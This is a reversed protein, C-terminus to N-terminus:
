IFSKKHWQWATSLIKDISKYKPKWKLDRLIKKCDAVLLPPDGKRKKKFIIKLKVRTVKEIGNIIELVSYGKGSGINYNLVCKKQRFKKLGYYHARVIDNVHIYDRVCTGDITKYSNGYIYVKKQKHKISNLIKPILHTEPKHNEGIKASGDAGAANFYRFSISKFNKKKGVLTLFKEIEKKNRGYESIPKMQHTELIKKTKPVGYVSASSSFILNNIKYKLMSNILNKTGIVNNIYYKRPEKESVNVISLAAFHFVADFKKKSMLQDLKKRNILDVKIFNVKNNILKGTSLNDFVTVEHNKLLLFKVMHSGIYGAGGTVLFKM